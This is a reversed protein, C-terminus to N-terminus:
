LSARTTKTHRETQRILEGAWHEALFHALFFTERALMWAQDSADDIRSTETPSPVAELGLTHAISMARKMHLPDSVILVRGLREAEAIRKANVLNEKTTRSTTELLIHEEAVGHQLAYRRAAEAEALRQGEGKGGTFLIRGIRGRHYLGVAHRIREAFVPSPDGGWVAAGLVIAADATTDERVQRYSWIQYALAGGGVAVALLCLRM